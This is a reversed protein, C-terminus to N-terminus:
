GLGVRWSKKPNPSDGIWLPEDLFTTNLNIAGTQLGTLVTAGKVASGMAYSSTMAGLAYDDVKLKGSENKLQKGAISLVEG